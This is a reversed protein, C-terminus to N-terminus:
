KRTDELPVPSVLAGLTVMAVGPTPWLRASFAVNLPEALSLPPEPNSRTSIATRSLAFPRQSSTAFAVNEAPKSFALAVSDFVEPVRVSQDSLM